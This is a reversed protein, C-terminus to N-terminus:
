PALVMTQGSGVEVTTYQGRTPTVRETRSVDAWAQPVSPILSSPAHSARKAYTRSAHGASERMRQLFRHTDLYM